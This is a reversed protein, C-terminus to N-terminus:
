FMYDIHTSNIAELESNIAALEYSLSLNDFDIANEMASVSGLNSGMHLGGLMALKRSNNQFLELQANNKRQMLSQKYLNLVISM